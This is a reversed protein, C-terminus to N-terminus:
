EFFDMDKAPMYDTMKFMRKIRKLPDEIRELPDEIRKLSDEFYKLPDEIRKLPDEFYPSRIGMLINVVTYRSVM